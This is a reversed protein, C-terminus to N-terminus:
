RDTQILNFRESLAATREEATGTPAAVAAGKYTQKEVTKGADEVCGSAVLVTAALSIAVLGSSAGKTRVRISM